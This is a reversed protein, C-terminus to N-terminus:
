SAICRSLYREHDFTGLPLRSEDGDLDPRPTTTPHGDLRARARRDSRSPGAPSHRTRTPRTSSSGADWPRDPRRKQYASPCTWTPGHRDWQCHRRSAPGAATAATCAHPRRRGHRPRIGLRRPHVVDLRGTGQTPVCPRAVRLPACLHSAVGLAPHCFSSPTIVSRISTRDQAEPQFPEVRLCLAQPRRHYHGRGM